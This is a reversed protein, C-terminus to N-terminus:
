AIYKKIIPNALDNPLVLAPSDSGSRRSGCSKALALTLAM